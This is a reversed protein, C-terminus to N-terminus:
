RRAPPESWEWRARSSRAPPPEAYLTDPSEDWGNPWTPAYFMTITIGYFVTITPM